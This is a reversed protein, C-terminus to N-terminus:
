KDAAASVVIDRIGENSFTYRVCVNMQPLMCARMPKKLALYQASRKSTLKFLHFTKGVAIELSTLRAKSNAKWRSVAVTSFIGRGSNWQKSSIGNKQYYGKNNEHAEIQQSISGTSGQQGRAPSETQSCTVTIDLCKGILMLSATLM